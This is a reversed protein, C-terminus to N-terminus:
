KLVVLRKEATGLFAVKNFFILLARSEGNISVCIGLVFAM